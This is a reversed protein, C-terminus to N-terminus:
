NDDSQDGSSLGIMERAHEWTGHIVERRGVYEGVLPGPELVLNLPARGLGRCATSTTQSTPFWNQLSKNGQSVSM